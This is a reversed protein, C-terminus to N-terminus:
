LFFSLIKLTEKEGLIKLSNGFVLTDLKKLLMICLEIVKM